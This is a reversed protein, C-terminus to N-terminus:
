PGNVPICYGVARDHFKKTQAMCQKYDTYTGVRVAALSDSGGPSYLILLLVFMVNM